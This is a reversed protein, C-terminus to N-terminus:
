FSVRPLALHNGKREWAAPAYDLGLVMFMCSLGDSSKVVSRASDLCPIGTKTFWHLSLIADANVSASDGIMFSPVSQRM